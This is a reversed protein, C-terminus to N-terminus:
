KGGKEVYDRYAGLVKTYQLRKKGVLRSAGLPYADPMVDRNTEPEWYIMGKLGAGGVREVLTLTDSLLEYTEEEENDRGGIESLVLPKGYLRSVQNLVDLFGETDHKEQFWAPYYSLGIMDTKGGRTFFVDFFTKVQELMHGMSVHTVVLTHPCVEKVADYGANLFEVMEAPHEAKNGAPLLLGTNIENGVQVYEPVAKAERLAVLVEKTHAAVQRAMEETGLNEWAKPVDQFMPDAFHDSYHFDIMLKMGGMKVRRAVEVVGDKDCFGLMVLGGKIEHGHFEKTPKVWFGYEPPNVFVRLRVTNAGLKKAEGIPDTLKGGGDVWKYGISELQSVWGLDVGLITDDILDRVEEYHFGAVSKETM